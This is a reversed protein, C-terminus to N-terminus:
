HDFYSAWATILPIISTELTDVGYHSLYLLAQRPPTWATERALPFARKRRRSRSHFPVSEGDRARTSLCAKATELALAGM